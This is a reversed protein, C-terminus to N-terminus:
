YKVTRPTTRGRQFHPNGVPRYPSQLPSLQSTVDIDREIGLRRSAALPASAERRPHRPTGCPYFLRYRRGIHIHLRYTRARSWGGQVNVARENENYSYYVCVRAISSCGRTVHAEVVVDVKERLRQWQRLTRSESNPLLPPPNLHEKERSFPPRDVVYERIRAEQKNM